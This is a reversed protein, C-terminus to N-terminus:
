VATYVITQVIRSSAAVCILTVSPVNLDRGREWLKERGNGLSFARWVIWSPRLTVSEVIEWPFHSCHVMTGACHRIWVKLGPPPPPDDLGQSLPPGPRLFFFNKARRAETQGLFLLPRAGPGERPDAVAANEVGLRRSCRETSNNKFLFCM